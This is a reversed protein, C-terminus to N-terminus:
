RGRIARRSTRQTRTPDIGKPIGYGNNKQLTRLRENLQTLETKAMLFRHKPHIKRWLANTSTSPTYSKCKTVAKRLDKLKVQKEGNGVSIRYVPITSNPTVTKIKREQRDMARQVRGYDGEGILYIGNYSTGRWIADKTKPDIWVPEEPFTYGGKSMNRLISVSAGPRGELQEYGVKDTRRSLTMIAFLFGLLMATIMLMIWTFVGWHFIIGLVIMVIIPAFFALLLWWPLQKDYQHTFKYVQAIQKYWPQKKEAQQKNDQALAM